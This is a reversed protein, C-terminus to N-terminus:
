CNPPGWNTSNYCRIMSQKLIYERLRCCKVEANGSCKMSGELRLNRLASNRLRLVASVKLLITRATPTHAWCGQGRDVLHWYLEGWTTVVLFTELCSWINGPFFFWEGRGGGNLVVPVSLTREGKWPGHRSCSECITAFRSIGQPAKRFDFKSSLHSHQWNESLICKLLNMSISFVTKVKLYVITTKFSCTYQLLMSGTEFSLM